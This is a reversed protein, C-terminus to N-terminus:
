RSRPLGLIREMRRRDPGPEPRTLELIKLSLLRHIERTEPSIEKLRHLHATVTAADGRAVPGTLAGHIGGERLNRIAGGALAALADLAQARGVGSTVLMDTGMSILAVLDNSVLSAGAHYAALANGDPRRRFRLATMGLDAALRVAVRRARPEGEIRAYSGELVLHGADGLVQLPHLVGTAMGASKLPHLVETGLGGAHHLAVSGPVAPLEALLAATPTIERDPVALLLLDPTGRVATATVGALGPFRRRFRGASRETRAVVSVIRVGAAQLAPGLASALRGTGILAVAHSM